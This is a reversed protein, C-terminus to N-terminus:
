RVTGNSLNFFFQEGKTDVLTLIEGAGGVIHAAGSAGPVPRSFVVTHPAGSSAVLVVDAVSPASGRVQAAYVVMGGGWWSNTVIWRGPDPSETSAHIGATLSHTQV